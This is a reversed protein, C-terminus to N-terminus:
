RTAEKQKRLIVRTAVQTDAEDALAKICSTQRCHTLSGIKPEPSSYVTVWSAAEVDWYRRLIKVKRM